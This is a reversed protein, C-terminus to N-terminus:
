VINSTKLSKPASKQFHENVVEIHVTFAPSLVKLMQIRHEAFEPFHIQFEVWALTAKSSLYGKQTMHHVLLTNSGIRSFYFRHQM